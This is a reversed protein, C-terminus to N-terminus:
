GGRVEGGVEFVSFGYRAVMVLLRVFLRVM